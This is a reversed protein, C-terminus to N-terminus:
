DKWQELLQQIAMREKESNAKNMMEQLDKKIDAKTAHGSYRKGQEDYPGRMYSGGRAYSQEEEDYPRGDGYYRPDMM